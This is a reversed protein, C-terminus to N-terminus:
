QPCADRSVGVTGLLRCRHWSAINPSRLFNLLKVYVNWKCTFGEIRVLRSARFDTVRILRFPHWLEEVSRKGNEADASSACNRKRRRAWDMATAHKTTTHHFNSFCNSSAISRELAVWMRSKSRQYLVWTSIYRFGSTSDVDALMTHGLIMLAHSILQSTVMSMLAICNWLFWDYSYSQITVTTYPWCWKKAENKFIKLFSLM